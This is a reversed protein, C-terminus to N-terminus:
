LSPYNKVLELAATDRPIGRSIVLVDMLYSRIVVICKMVTGGGGEEGRMEIVWSFTLVSQTKKFNEPTWFHLM